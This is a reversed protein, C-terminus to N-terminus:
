GATEELFERLASLTERPSEVMMMHGAGPLVVSRCDGIGEALSRAGRPPTMRDVAGMLLLTPCTVKEAAAVAGEYAACAALDTGLADTLEREVLRGSGGTMWMGPAPNGGRHARRGFGWGIIMNVAALHGEEAASLLRPHVPMEAAVGLLALAQIRGPYRATTELVALAGMSHGVLTAREIGAADLMRVTWDAIEGISALTSGASAGHGPLDVVAVNWDRHALYRSQQQWVSHNMGAGHLFVVWPQASDPNRGATHVFVEVGDVTVKM